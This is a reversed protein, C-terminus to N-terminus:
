GNLELPPPDTLHRVEETARKWAGSALLPEREPARRGHLRALRVQSAPESYGGLSDIAEIVSERDNCILIMDCGAELALRARDEIGGVSEAAVMVLDDSFVVGRFGMRGRLEETLWWRSFSAPLPDVELYAVHAAMVANLGEPILSEYPRMDDMIDAYPRTDEPLAKHSDAIVAGHGPFHKGTAAM